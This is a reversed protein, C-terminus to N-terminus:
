LRDIVEPQANLTGTVADLSVHPWGPNSFRPILAVMKGAAKDFARLGEVRLPYDTQHHSSPWAM